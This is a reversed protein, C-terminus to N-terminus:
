AYQALGNGFSWNEKQVEVLHVILDERRWGAGEQALEAMRRLLAKKKEVSRGVSCVIQVFAPRAHSLGLYSPTCVLSDGGLAEIVQFRDDQPVDFTETLAQHVADALAARAAAATGAPVSIRVFPM